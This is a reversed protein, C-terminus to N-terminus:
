VSRHHAQQMRHVEQRVTGRFMRQLIAERRQLHLAGRGALQQLTHLHLVRPALARAQVDRRRANYDSVIIVKTVSPSNKRLKKLYSSM